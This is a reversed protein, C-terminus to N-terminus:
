GERPARVHVILEVRQSPAGSDPAYGAHARLVLRSPDMGALQLAQVVAGAQASSVAWAADAGLMPDTHGAVMIWVRSGVLAQALAGIVHRGQQHLAFAGEAFLLDAPLVVTLGDGRPRVAAASPVAASVASILAGTPAATVRGKKGGARVRVEKAALSRELRTIRDAQRQRQEAAEAACEAAEAKAAQAERRHAALWVEYKNHLEDQAARHEARTMSASCGALGIVAAALAAAAQGRAM